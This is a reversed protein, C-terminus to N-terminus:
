ENANALRSASAPNHEFYIWDLSVGNGDGSGKPVSAVLHVEQQGSPADNVPISIETWNTAGKTDPLAATGIEKGNKGKVMLKMGPATTAVRLTLQQVDKFDIGEFVLYSGEKIQDVYAYNDKPVNRPRANFKKDFDEAQVRADRLMVHKTRTLPGVGEGGQDTYKVTMEYTGSVNDPQPEPTLTGTLPLSSREDISLIYDVIHGAEQESVAQAPMAREGWNGKGGKLIKNVLMSTTEENREYRAAVANYAPGVSQKEYSHCAKCGSGEILAFGDTVVKHGLDDTSSTAPVFTFSFDVAKADISGKTLNGDERDDVNVQYQIPVDNWYFSSNSALVIDIAPPENGVEVDITKTTSAGAQDVVTLQVPYKGAKEFTHQPNAVESQVDEGEFTWRYSLKDDADYDFSGESSFSVTFPPAGMTQDAAIQAVPTRNGESYDIRSLMAGPNAAFWDSGYELLYLEGDPGLELDILHNFKEDSLFPEIRVLDGNADLTLAKIWGRMWDYIFVKNDYYDPLRKQGYPFRESHYVPGAMANRGGTGLSPFEPSVDYPYWILAKQFPPLVEAGTNNPSRNVPAAPDYYPGIQDTVFDYDPYARNGRFYPWGFNGAAKAQNVEDYGRPGRESDVRADNGVDGWYLWGTAQDVSIRYSNRTGMTYIEPRGGSGDKPFLNDDPISYTADDNVSIRIVKGRLDNTNGSSGQADFPERDPREDIPAYGESEFPNTDDGTSLFLNGDPGFTISGGTHCCQDRQVDVTLILKESSMILSDGLLLFRSLHQVPEDGVPSYYMYIWHNRHFDPDRALGMLGDEFKTHVNLKAIQKVLETEPDYLKVAGKRQIFVVKGDPLVTLETPEELPGPVLVHKVFRSDDPVALSRARQYDLDNDGIAFNLGEAILEAERPSSLGASVKKGNLYFVNGGDYEREIVNIGDEKADGERTSMLEVSPEEFSPNESVKDERIGLLGEYWPWTYKTNIASAVGVLGGGAQVFREVSTQQRINLSNVLAGLFVVASYNALTNEELLVARSTTDVSFKQEQGTKQIVAIGAPANGKIPQYFVLVNRERESQCSFLTLFGLSLCLLSPLTRM